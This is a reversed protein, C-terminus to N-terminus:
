RRRPPRPAAPRNTERIRFTIMATTLDATNMEVKVRDGPNIRIYNKRLKGSIRGLVVHKNALEIRFMTGPLVQLIKGELELIQGESMPRLAGRFARSTLPIHPSLPSAISESSGLSVLSVRFPLFMLVLPHPNSGVIGFGVRGPLGKRVRLRGCIRSTRLWRLRRLVEAM